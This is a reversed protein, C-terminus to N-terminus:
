LEECMLFVETSGHLKMVSGSGLPLSSTSVLLFGRFSTCLVRRASFSLLGCCILLLWYYVSTEVSVGQQVVSQVAQEVPEAWLLLVFTIKLSVEQFHFWRFLFPVTFFLVWRWESIWRRFICCLYSVLKLGFWNLKLPDSSICKTNYMFSSVDLILVFIFLHSLLFIFVDNFVSNIHLSFASMM